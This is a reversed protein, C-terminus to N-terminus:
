MVGKFNADVLMLAQSKSRTAEPVCADRSASHLPALYAALSVVTSHQWQQWAAAAWPLFTFTHGDDKYSFAVVTTEAHGLPPGRVQPSM